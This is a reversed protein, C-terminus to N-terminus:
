GRKVERSAHRESRSSVWAPNRWAVPHAGTRARTRRGPGIQARSVMDTVAASYSYHLPSRSIPGSTGGIGLDILMSHMARGM